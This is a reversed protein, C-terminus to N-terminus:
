LTGHQIGAQARPLQARNSLPSAGHDGLGQTVRVRFIAGATSPLSTLAKPDNSKWGNRRM